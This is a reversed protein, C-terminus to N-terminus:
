HTAIVKIIRAAGIRHLAVVFGESNQQVFGAEKAYRLAHSAFRLVHL